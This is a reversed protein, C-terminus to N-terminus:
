YSGLVGGSPVRPPDPILLTTVGTLQFDYLGNARAIVDWLTADGYQELAVRFLNVGAVKITKAAM